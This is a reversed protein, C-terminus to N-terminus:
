SRRVAWGSNTATGGAERWSKGESGRRENGPAQNKQIEWNLDGLIRIEPVQAM